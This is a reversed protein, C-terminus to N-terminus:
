AAKKDAPNRRMLSNLKVTPLNDRNTQVVVPKRSETSLSEWPLIRGIGKLVIGEARLSGIRAPVIAELPEVDGTPRTPQVTLKLSDGRIVQWGVIEAAFTEGRESSRPM